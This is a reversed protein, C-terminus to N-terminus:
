MNSATSEFPEVFVPLVGNQKTEPRMWGPSMPLTQRHALKTRERTHHIHSLVRVFTEDSVVKNVTSWELSLSVIISRATNEVFSVAMPAQAIAPCPIPRM